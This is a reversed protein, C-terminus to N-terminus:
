SESVDFPIHSLLAVFGTLWAGQNHLACVCVCEALLADSWEGWGGDAPCCAGCANHM